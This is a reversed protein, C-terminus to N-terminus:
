EYKTIGGSTDIVADPYPQPKYILSKLIKKKEKKNALIYIYRVKTSNLKVWFPRPLQKIIGKIGLNNYKNSLTRNHKFNVGDFSIFYNAAIQGTPCYLWNTAKYIVGSHGAAPDAYSVLAKIEPKHKRLWKFSQSIFWSETNKPTDDTIYLRTLELVDGQGVESSISNVVNNGVPDGYTLCGLLKDNDGDFFKDEGRKFLGLAYSCKTWAHSYHHKIIMKKAIFKPIEKIYYNNM